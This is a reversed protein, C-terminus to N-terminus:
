AESRTPLEPRPMWHTPSDFEQYVNYEGQSEGYIWRKPEFKWLNGYGWRAVAADIGDTVLIATGDKPATEIPRWEAERM